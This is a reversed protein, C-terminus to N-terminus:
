NKLYSDMVAQGFNIQNEERKITKHYYKRYTAANIWGAAKMITDMSVGVARVASVSSSRNSHATCDATHIGARALTWRLWRAVTDKSAAKHPALLTLFLSDTKGWLTKAKELYVRLTHMVCVAKNECSYLEIPPLHTGRRSQKLLTNVFFTCKEERLLMCEPNIKLAQLTQCRQGSLLAILMRLKMSLEKLTLKDTPTWCELEQLVINVDWTTCYKPLAPKREYVGKMLRRVLGHNGFCVNDSFQLYCSLALRATAVASYSYDQEALSALFNVAENLLSSIPDVQKGCANREWKNIYVGYMQKTSNRWSAMLLNTANPSLGQQQYRKRIHQM